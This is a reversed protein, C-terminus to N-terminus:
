ADWALTRDVGDSWRVIVTGHETARLRRHRRRGRNTDRIMPMPKGTLLLTSAFPDFAYMTQQDDDFFLDDYTDHRMTLHLPELDLLVREKVLAM